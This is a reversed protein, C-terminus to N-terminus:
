LLLFTNIHPADPTPLVINKSFNVLSCDHQVVFQVDSFYIKNRDNIFGEGFM